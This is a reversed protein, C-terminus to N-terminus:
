GEAAPVARVQLDNIVDDVGASKWAVDSAENKAAWSRVVGELRVQSGQVAVSVLTADVQANRVLADRIGAEVTAASVDPQNLGIENVIEQVGTLSQVAVTAAHRQYAWKVTGSLYIRGETVVVEIRNRPVLIALDMANAAAIAIDTDTRSYFGKISLDNAIARVGVVRKTADEVFGRKVYSDVRGSLTVVGDHVQVDVEVSDIKPDWTLESIVDARVASDTNAAVTM